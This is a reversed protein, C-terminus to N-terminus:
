RKIATSASQRPVCIRTRAIEIDIQSQRPSNSKVLAPIHFDDGVSEVQQIAEIGCVYIGEAVGGCSIGCAGCTLRRGGEIRASELERQLQIPLPPPEGGARNPNPNEPTSAVRFPTSRGRMHRNPSEALARIDAPMAPVGASFLGERLPAAQQARGMYIRRLHSGRAYGLIKM